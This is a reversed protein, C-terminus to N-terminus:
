RRPSRERIPERRPSAAHAAGRAFARRGRPGRAFAREGRLGRVALRQGVQEVLGEARDLRAERLPALRRPAGAAGGAPRQASARGRERRHGVERARQARAEGRGVREARRGHEGAGLGVVPPRRLHQEAEAAARRDLGHPHVVVGVAGAVRGARAAAGGDADRRLGAARHAADEAGGALLAEAAVEAGALDDGLHQVEGAFAGDGVDDEHAHALREGVVPRRQPRHAPEEAAVAEAQARAADRDRRDAELARDPPQRALAQLDAERDRQVRRVVRQPPPQDRRRPADGDVAQDGGRALVRLAGAAADGEGVRQQRADVVRRLLRAAEGRAHPSRARM